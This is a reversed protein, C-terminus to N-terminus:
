KETGPKLGHQIREIIRPTIKYGHKLISQTDAKIDHGPVVGIYARRERTAENEGIIVGFTAGSHYFWIDDIIKM